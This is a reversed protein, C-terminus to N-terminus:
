QASEVATSDKADPAVIAPVPDWVSETASTIRRLEDQVAQATEVTAHLRDVAESVVHDSDQARWSALDMRLRHLAVACKDSEYLLRVVRERHKLTLDMLSRTTALRERSIGAALTNNQSRSLQRQIDAEEQRLRAYDEPGCAWMLDLASQLVAIGEAFVDHALGPLSRLAFSDLPGRAALLPALRNYEYTLKQLAQLGQSSRVKSFGGRLAKHSKTLDPDSKSSLAEVGDGRSTAFTALAHVSLAVAVFPWAAVSIIGAAAAGMGAAALAYGPAAFKLTGPQLADWLDPLHDGQPRVGEPVPSRPSTPVPVM